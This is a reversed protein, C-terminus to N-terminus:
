ETMKEVPALILIKYFGKAGPADAIFPTHGFVFFFLNKIGGICMKMYQCNDKRNKIGSVIQLSCLVNENDSTAYM